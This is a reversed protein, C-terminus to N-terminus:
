RQRARDVSPEHEGVGHRSMGLPMLQPRQRGIGVARLATLLLLFDEFRQEFDQREGITLTVHNSLCRIARWPQLGARLGGDTAEVSPEVRGTGSPSRGSPFSGCLIHPIAPTYRRSSLAEASRSAISVVMSSSISCRPPSAVPKAAKPLSPTRSHCFADHSAVSKLRWRRSTGSPVLVTMPWVRQAVWPNGAKM